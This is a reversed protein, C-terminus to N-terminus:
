PFPEHRRHVCEYVREHVRERERVFSLPALQIDVVYVTGQTPCPQRCWVVGHVGSSPWCCRLAMSLVDTRATAGMLTIMSATADM